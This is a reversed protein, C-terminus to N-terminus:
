GNPLEKTLDVSDEPLKEPRFRYTVGGVSAEIPPLSNDEKLGRYLKEIEIGMWGRNSVNYTRLVLGVVELSGRVITLKEGESYHSVSAKEVLIHSNEPSNLDNTDMDKIGVIEIPEKYPYRAEQLSSPSKLYTVAVIHGFESV